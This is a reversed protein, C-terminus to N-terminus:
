STTRDRHLQDLAYRAAYEPQAIQLLAPRRLLPVQVLIGCASRLTHNIHNWGGHTMGHMDRIREFLRAVAGRLRAAPTM